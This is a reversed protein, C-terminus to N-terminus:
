EAFSRYLISETPCSRSDSPKWVISYRRIYEFGLHYFSWDFPYTGSRAVSISEIPIFYVLYVLINKIIILHLFGMLLVVMMYLYVFATYYFTFPFIFPFFDALEM